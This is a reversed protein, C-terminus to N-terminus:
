CIQVIRVNLIQQWTRTKLRLYFYLFYVGKKYINKSAKM